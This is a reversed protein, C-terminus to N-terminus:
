SSVEQKIEIYSSYQEEITALQILMTQLILQCKEDLLNLVEIVIHQGVKLDVSESTLKDLANLTGFVVSSVGACVLDEGKRASGAHGSVTIKKVEENKSVVCVRVM